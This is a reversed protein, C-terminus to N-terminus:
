FYTKQRTSKYWFFIPTTWGGSWMQAAATITQSSNILKLENNVFRCARPLEGLLQLLHLLRLQNEGLRFPHAVDPASPSRSTHTLRSRRLLRTLSTLDAPPDAAAM